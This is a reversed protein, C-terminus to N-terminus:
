HYTRWHIVLFMQESTSRESLFINCKAFNEGVSPFIHSELDFYLPVGQILASAVSELLVFYLNNLVSVKTIREIGQAGGNKHESFSKLFHCLTGQYM